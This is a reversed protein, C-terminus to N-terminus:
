SAGDLAQLIQKAATLKDTVLLYPATAWDVADYNQWQECVDRVRQIAAEAQEARDKWHRDSPGCATVGHITGFVQVSVKGLPVSVQGCECISM